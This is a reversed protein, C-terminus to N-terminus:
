TSRRCVSANAEIAADVKQEVKAASATSKKQPKQVIAWIMMKATGSKLPSPYPNEIPM